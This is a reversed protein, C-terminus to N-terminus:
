TNPQGPNLGAHLDDRMAAYIDAQQQLATASDQGAFTFVLAQSANYNAVDGAAGTLIQAEGNTVTVSRLSDLHYGAAWEAENFKSRTGDTIGSKELGVGLAGLQRHLQVIEDLTRFEAATGKLTSEFEGLELQM